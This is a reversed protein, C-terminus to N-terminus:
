LPPLGEDFPLTFRFVTGIPTNQEFTLNGEHYEILSRCINLGMGMGEAKTTFFPSFLQHAVEPPIGSGIDAVEVLAHSADLRSTRIVAIRENPPLHQMAERANRLFNVLVQEIMIHDALVPPLNTQLNLECHLAREEDDSAVLKVVTAALGNIDLAKRQPERTRVFERVRSIIAGARVVQADAKEMAGIVATDVNGNGKLRRICGSVYNAIAALPQNIEHALTSAIEGVTMLRSTRMLKEQQTQRMREAFVRDTVDGLTTLRAIRGDVWRVARTRTLFWRHSVRHELEDKFVDGPQGEITLLGQAPYKESPSQVFGAEFQNASRGVELGPFTEHLHSNGFLLENSQLDSVYVSVDLSDLVTEFRENTDRLNSISQAYMRDRDIEALKRMRQQKRLGISTWVMLGTLALVATSLTLNPLVTSPKAGVLTIKLDRWPLALPVTHKVAGSELHTAESETLGQGSADTIVVRYKRAAWEPASKELLLDFSIVANVTGLFTENAFVPAAYEICFRGSANRYPQSYTSRNTKETFGMMRSQDSFPGRNLKVAVLSKSGPAHRTVEYDSNIRLIDTVYGSEIARKSAIRDFDESSIREGGLDLALRDFFQQDAELRRSISQEVVAADRVIESQGLNAEHRAVFYILLMMGAAFALLMWEHVYWDRERKPSPPARQTVNKEANKETSLVPM